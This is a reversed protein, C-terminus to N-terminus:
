TRSVSSRFQKWVLIMQRDERKLINEPIQSLKYHNESGNSSVTEQSIEIQSELISKLELMANKRKLGIKTV